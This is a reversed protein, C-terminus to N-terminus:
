DEHDYNSLTAVASARKAQMQLKEYQRMFKDFNEKFLRQNKACRTQFFFIFDKIFGVHYAVFSKQVKKKISELTKEQFNDLVQYLHRNPRIRYQIMYHILDILWILERRFCANTILTGIIVTNVQYGLDNIGQILEDGQEQNQCGWALLGFTM